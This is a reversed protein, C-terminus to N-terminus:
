GITAHPLCVSRLSIPWKECVNLDSRCPAACARTGKALPSRVGEFSLKTPLRGVMRTSFGVM